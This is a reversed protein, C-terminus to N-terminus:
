LYKSTRKRTKKIRRKLKENLVTHRRGLDGDEEIWIKRLLLRDDDANALAM